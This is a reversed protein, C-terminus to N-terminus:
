KKIPPLIKNTPCAGDIPLCVDRLYFSFNKKLYKNSYLTTRSLQTPTLWTRHIVKHFCNTLHRKARYCLAISIRRRAFPVNNLGDNGSDSMGLTFLEVPVIHSVINVVSVRNFDLVLLVSHLLM